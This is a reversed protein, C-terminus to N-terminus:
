GRILTCPNATPNNKPPEASLRIHESISSDMKFLDFVRKKWYFHMKKANKQGFIQM